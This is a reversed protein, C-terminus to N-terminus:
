LKRITLHAFGGFGTSKASPPTRNEFEVAEVYARGSEGTRLDTFSAISESSELDELARLREYASGLRGVASAPQRRETDEILLPLRIMRQREPEPLARLQYGLLIPTESLHGSDPTLTFKLAALKEATSFQFPIREAASTAVDITYLSLEGGASNVQSVAVTGYDGDVQVLVSDFRKPELTAFRHYGTTLSGAAYDAGTRWISDPAWAIQKSYGLTAVGAATEAGSFPDGRHTWAFELGSGIQKSLDIEVIRNDLVASARTSYKAISTDVHSTSVAAREVLLPGYTVQGSESLIGVRVGVATVLVVFGLHASLAYVFEGPPLEGVQVPASLVPITGTSDLTMAFIRDGNGILIPGPTDSVCSNADWDVGTFIVDTSAVANPPTDPNTALQYWKGNSDSVILRSKVYWVGRGTTTLGTYLVTEVDTDPDVSTVTGDDLLAYILTPSVTVALVDALSAPAYTTPAGAFNGYKLTVGDLVVVDAGIAGVYSVATVAASYEAWAKQCTVVGPEFPDVGDAVHFRNLVTEGESVEYYKVDAGKHFSFQGRTWWGILSQDGAQQGTDLQDKRFQATARQYPRTDSPALKFPLDDIVFDYGLDKYQSTSSSSSSTSFPEVIPGVLSM